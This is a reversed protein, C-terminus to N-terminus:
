PLYLEDAIVVLSERIFNQYITVGNEHVIYAITGLKEKEEQPLMDFVEKNYEDPKYDLVDGIKLIRLDINDLNITEM